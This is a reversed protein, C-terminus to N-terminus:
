RLARAYCLAELHRNIVAGGFLELETANLARALGLSVTRFHLLQLAGGGSVDRVSIIGCRLRPGVLQVIGWSRSTVVLSLLSRWVTVMASAGADWVISRLAVSLGYTRSAFGM